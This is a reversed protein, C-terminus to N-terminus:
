AALSVVGEPVVMGSRFPSTPPELAANPRKGPRIFLLYVATVLVVWYIIVAILSRGFPLRLVSKVILVDVVLELLM